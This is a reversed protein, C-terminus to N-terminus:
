RWWVYGAGAAVTAGWIAANVVMARSWLPPRRHFRLGLSSEVLQLAADLNGSTRAALVFTRAEAYLYLGDPGRVGASIEDWPVTVCNREGDEIVLRSPFLRVTRNRAAISLSRFARRVRSARQRAPVWFVLGAVGFGLAVAIALQDPERLVWDILATALVLAALVPWRTERGHAGHTLTTAALM